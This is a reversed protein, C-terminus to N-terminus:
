SLFVDYEYGEDLIAIPFKETENWNDYKLTDRINIPKGFGPLKVSSTESGM